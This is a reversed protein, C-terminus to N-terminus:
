PIKRHFLFGLVLGLIIGALPAVIFLGFYGVALGEMSPWHGIPGGDDTLRVWIVLTLFFGAILGTAFGLAFRM